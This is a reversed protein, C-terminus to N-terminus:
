TLMNQGLIFGYWTSGANPSILLFTDIAGSGSTVTPAVGGAWETGSPWGTINFSGNNTVILTIKTLTGSSAPNSITMSTVTATLLLEVIEGLARNITVSAGTPGTQVQVQIGVAGTPGTAGTNVAGGPVGQPGTPGTGGTGFGTPGTAGTNVAGGQVGTPGVAGTIGTAGTPGTAGTNAATGSAGTAGTFGTQGQNGTPGTSSAGTPGTSGTLGTSSSPAGTAGTPGFVRQPVVVPYVRAVPM